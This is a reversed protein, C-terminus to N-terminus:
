KSCVAPAVIRHPLPALRGWLSSRAPLSQTKPPPWSVPRVLPLNAVDITAITGLGVDDLMRLRNASAPALWGCALSYSRLTALSYCRLTPLGSALAAFLRFVLALIRSFPNLFTQSAGVLLHHTRQDPTSSNEEGSCGVLSSSDKQVALSTRQGCSVNESTSTQM